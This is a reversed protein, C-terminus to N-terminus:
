KKADDGIYRSLGAEAAVRDEYYEQTYQREQGIYSALWTVCTAMAAQIEPAARLAGTIPLRLLAMYAHEEPFSGREAEARSLAAHLFDIHRFVAFADARRVVGAAYCGGTVCPAGNLLWDRLKALADAGLDGEVAEPM